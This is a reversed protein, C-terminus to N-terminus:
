AADLTVAVQFALLLPRLTANDNSGWSCNTFLKHSQAPSVTIHLLPTTQWCTLQPVSHFRSLLLSTTACLDLFLTDTKFGVNGLLYLAIYKSQGQQDINGFVWEM